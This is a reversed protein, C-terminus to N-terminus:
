VAMLGRLVSVGVQGVIPMVCVRRGILVYDPNAPATNFDGLVLTPSDPEVLAM